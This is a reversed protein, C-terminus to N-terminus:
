FAEGITIHYAIRDNPDPNGDGLRNIRVGLGARAVGVPTQYELSGGVAVNLRALDIDQFTPPVDGADVFPTIGLWNGAIKTLAFRVEGSFLVEGDGGVPFLQGQSDPVQPSLRGYGFGRHSSPGGLRYRRTIPSQDAGYPRLWGVLGRMAVVVRRGIPRYLRLDPTLKTYHFDGGLAPDGVEVRMLFYAGFTPELPRERLDVTGFLEVFALRYPDKFGFFRNTAQNFVDQNVDYFDLLQFNYSGGILLRDRLYPHELGVSGRPGRFRYGEDIGLDYGALAQLTLDDLLFDPQTFRAETAIAPGRVAGGSAFGPVAVYAPSVRLTLRRLGGLFSAKRYEIRLRVEQRQREAGLGGGVRVEHLQGPHVQIHVDAVETPEDPLVIRVSSFVGTEAIRRQTAAVDRQDFTEGANWTVRRKILEPAIKGSGEIVTDGFRVHPGTSADLGVSAARRDRDVEVKGVVKGYAFGDDRLHSELTGRLEAYDTYDFRAGPEVDLQAAMARARPAEPVPLGAMAVQEIKTPPGEAVRVVIDVSGDGRERVEDGLVRADFYGHDAYRAPIRRLDEDFAAQDFWKKGAFPWWGPKQTALGELIEGDSLAHNGEITFGHVWVGTGLEDHACGVLLCLALGVARTM